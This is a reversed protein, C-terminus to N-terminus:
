RLGSPVLAHMVLTTTDSVFGDVVQVTDAADFDNMGSPIWLAWTEVAIDAYLCSVEGVASM